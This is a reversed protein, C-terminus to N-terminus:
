TFHYDAHSAGAPKNQTVGIMPSYNGYMSLRTDEEFHQAKGKLVYVKMSSLREWPIQEGKTSVAIWNLQSTLYQEVESTGLHNIEDNTPSAAEHYLPITLPIQALSLMGADRQQVCNECSPPQGPESPGLPTSFNYVSGVHKPHTAYNNTSAVDSSDVDGLFFHITYPNGNLASRDYLIDIIYDNYTNGTRQGIINSRDQLVVRGTSSYKTEIHARIRDFYNEDSEGKERKLEDLDDYQYGFQSWNQLDDSNFYRVEKMPAQFEHHFPTLDSNAPPQGAVTTFWAHPNLTQWIATLRDINAHHMYFIPDFAAVQVQSMHGIGGPTLGNTTSGGILDHLNNHISELSIWNEWSTQRPVRHAATTAFDFWSQPEKSDSLLRYVMDSITLGQVRESHIAKAVEVSNNVGDLGSWSTKSVKEIGHRSTGSCQASPFDVNGNEDLVDEVKFPAELGGMPMLAGGVKLQFRYLPNPVTKWSLGSNMTAPGRIRIEETKFLAPEQGENDPLAWDWYPLRWHERADEWDAVQFYSLRETHPTDQFKQMARIFLSVQIEAEPDTSWKSFERRLGPSKGEPVPIGQIHVFDSSM